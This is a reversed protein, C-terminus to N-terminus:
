YAPVVSFKQTGHLMFMFGTVIESDRLLQLINGLIADM